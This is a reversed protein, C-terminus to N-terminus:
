VSQAIVARVPPRWITYYINLAIPRSIHDRPELSCLSCTNCVPGLYSSSLPCSSSGSKYLTGLMTLIIADLLGRHTPFTALIPPSFSHRCFKPASYEQTIDTHFVSFSIPPIQPKWSPSSALRPRRPTSATHHQPLDGTNWFVPLLTRLFTSIRSFCWVAVCGLLGRSSLPFPLM